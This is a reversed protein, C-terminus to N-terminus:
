FYKLLLSSKKRLKFSFAASINDTMQSPKLELLALPVLNCSSRTGSDRISQLGDGGDDDAVDVEVVLEDAAVPPDAGAAAPAALALDSAMGM